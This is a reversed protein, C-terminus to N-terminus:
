AWCIWLYKSNSREKKPHTQISCFFLRESDWQNILESDTTKLKRKSIMSLFKQAPVRICMQKNLLTYAHAYAHAYLMVINYIEIPYFNLFFM